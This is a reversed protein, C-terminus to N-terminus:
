RNKECSTYVDIDVGTEKIALVNTQIAIQHDLCDKMNPMALDFTMGIPKGAVLIFWVLYVM